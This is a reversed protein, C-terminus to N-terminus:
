STIIFKKNIIFLKRNRRKKEAFGPNKQLKEKRKKCFDWSGNIITSLVPTNCFIDFPTFLLFFPSVARLKAPASRIKHVNDCLNMLAVTFKGLALPANGIVNKDM